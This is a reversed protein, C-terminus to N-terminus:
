QYASYNPAEKGDEWDVCYKETFIRNHTAYDAHNKEIFLSYLIMIFLEVQANM